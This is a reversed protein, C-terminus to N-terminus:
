APGTPRHALGSQGTWTIGDPSTMALFTGGNNAVRRVARRWIVASWIGSPATRSQRTVGDPSTMVENAAVAVFLGEGYTIETGTSTTSRLHARSGPTAPHQWLLPAVAAAGVAAVLPVAAFAAAVTRARLSRLHRIARTM